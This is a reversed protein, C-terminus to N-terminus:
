QKRAAWGAFQLSRWIPEVTLGAARLMGVNAEETIPAMVGSLSERKAAIERETYGHERKRGYYIRDFMRTAEGSSGLCKEVVILVGDDALTRVMEDVFTQRDEIPVFQLTLVALSVDYTGTGAISMRSMADGHAISVQPTDAFRERAADAMPESVDVGFARVDEPSDLADLIHALANGRSCGVDLIYKRRRGLADLHDVAVERVIRRMDDHGPISRALMDDFHATVEADFTWPTSPDLNAEVPM